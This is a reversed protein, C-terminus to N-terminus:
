GGQNTCSSYVTGEEQPSNLNIATTTLRCVSFLLDYKAAYDVEDIYPWLCRWYGTFPGRDLTGSIPPSECVPRAIRMVATEGVGSLTRIARLGPRRKSRVELSGAADGSLLPPVPGQVFEPTFRVTIRCREGPLLNRGSCRNRRPPVKFTESGSLTVHLRGTARAGANRVFYKQVQTEGVLVHGFDGSPWGAFDLRRQDAADAQPMGVLCAATLLLIVIRRSM